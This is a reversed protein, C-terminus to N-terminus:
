SDQARTELANQQQDYQIERRARDLADIFFNNYDENYAIGLPGISAILDDDAYVDIETISKPCFVLNRYGKALFDDVHHSKLRATILDWMQSIPIHQGSQAEAWAQRLNEKVEEISTDDLDIGDLRTTM